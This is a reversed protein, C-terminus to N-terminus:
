LETSAFWPIGPAVLLQFLYCISDGRSGESPTRGKQDRSRPSGAGLATLCDLKTKNKKKKLNQKLGQLKTAARPCGQPVFVPGHVFCVHSSLPQARHSQGLAKVRSLCWTRGFPLLGPHCGGRVIQIPIGLLWKWPIRMLWFYSKPLVAVRSWM